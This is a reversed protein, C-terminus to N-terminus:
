GGDLGPRTAVSLGLGRRHGGAIWPLPPPPPVALFQPTSVLPGTPTERAQARTRAGGWQRPSAARMDPPTIMDQEQHPFSYFPAKNGNSFAGSFAATEAVIPGRTWPWLVCSSLGLSCFSRSHPPPLRGAASTGCHWPKQPGQSSRTTGEPEESKGARDGPECDQCSM